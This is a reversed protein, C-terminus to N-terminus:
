LGLEAELRGSDIAAILAQYDADNQDAYAEAFDAIHSRSATRSASTRRSPSEIARDPMRGLSPRAASARMSCRAARFWSRPTSRGRGTTSSACTSTASSATPARRRAALGLFIDSSAQMLRQGRVVREGSNEYESPGLFRELVSKQAEKAQLFLPDADDRGTLLVIWARTGVSGVGVVKRAMHVYTYESLPHHEPSHLTRQYSALLDRMWDEIQEASRGDTVLDEVPVILPPDAIIRM